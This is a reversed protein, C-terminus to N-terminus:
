FYTSYCVAFLSRSRPVLPGRLAVARGTHRTKSWHRKQPKQAHSPSLDFIGSSSNQYEAVLPAIPNDSQAAWKDRSGPAIRVSLDEAHGWKKDRM